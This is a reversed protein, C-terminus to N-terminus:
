INRLMFIKYMEIPMLGIEMRREDLHEIDETPALEVTKSVPDVKSFQTGYLQKEGNNVQIRDYLYAYSQGDLDGKKVAIEVNELQSQQWEKDRDAHQIIM